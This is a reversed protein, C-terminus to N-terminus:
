DAKIKNKRNQLKLIVPFATLFIFWHSTVFSLLFVFLTSAMGILILVSFILFHQFFESTNFKIKEKITTPYEVKMITTEEM